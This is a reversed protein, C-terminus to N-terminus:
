VKINAVEIMNWVVTLEKELVLDDQWLAKESAFRVEELEKDKEALVTVIVEQLSRSKEDSSTILSPM